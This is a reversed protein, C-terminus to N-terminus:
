WWSSWRDCSRVGDCLECSHLLLGFVRVHAACVCVCLRGSAAADVAVAARRRANKDSGHHGDHRTRDAAHHVLPRRRRGCEADSIALRGRGDSWVCVRRDACVSVTVTVTVAGGGSDSSGSGRGNSSAWAPGRDHRGIDGCREWGQGSQGGTAGRHGAGRSRGAGRRRWHGHRHGRLQVGGRRRGESRGPAGCHQQV